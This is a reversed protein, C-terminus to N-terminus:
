YDIVGEVLYDMAHLERDTMVRGKLVRLNGEVDRIPGTLADLRGEIMERQRQQVLRKLDDPVRSSIPALDVVGERLGLWAPRLQVDGDSLRDIIQDYMEGWNWVASTLISSPAFTSMDSQYGIANIGHQEAIQLAAPTDQHITIVDVGRLILERARQQAESPAYQSNTWHLMVEAGPNISQVGMAFANIGVIVSPTPQAAVYGILNSKTMGGAIIGSLYRAQYIRGCFVQVNAAPDFLGCYIFRVDQHQAASETIAAASDDGTMFILNAGDAVLRDVAGVVQDREESEVELFATTSVKPNEALKRRGMELVFTRGGDDPVGVYVFGAKIVGSGQAEQRVAPANQSRPSATTEAEGVLAVAQGDKVTAELLGQDTMLRYIGESWGILRGSVVDGDKTAIEVQQVSAIPVQLMGAGQYKISITNGLSRAVTGEVVNGDTLTFTEAVAPATGALLGAAVIAYGLRSITM